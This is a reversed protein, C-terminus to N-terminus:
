HNRNSRDKSKVYMWRFLTVIGLVVVFSGILEGILSYINYDEIGQIFGIAVILYFWWQNLTWEWCGQKKKIKM